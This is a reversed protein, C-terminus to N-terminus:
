QTRAELFRQGVGSPLVSLLMEALLSCAFSVVITTTTSAEGAPFTVTGNPVIFQEAVAFNFGSGALGVFPNGSSDLVARADNLVCVTQNPHLEQDLVVVLTRWSVNEPTVPHVSAAMWTIQEVDLLRTRACIWQAPGRSKFIRM